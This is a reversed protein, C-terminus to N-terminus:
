KSTSRVMNDTRHFNVVDGTSYSVKGKILLTKDM